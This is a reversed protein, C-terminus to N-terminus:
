KSTIIILNNEYGNNQVIPRLPDIRWEGDVIFKIEYRGPYLKLRLSFVGTSLKEMKRQTAWGDFSGTLLVESAPNPWVIHANHLLQLAKHAGDIRKQKEELMKQADIIALTMKGEIVALKARISRLREHANIFENEQFEWADSLKELDSKTVERSIYEESKSRLLQLASALEVELHMLRTRINNHNNGNQRHLDDTASEALLDIDDMSANREGERNQSFAIEAAEFEIDQTGARQLNWTRWSDPRIERPSNIMGLDIRDSGTSVPNRDSQNDRSSGHSGNRYNGINIGLSSNREKELRSLIGEIGGGEEAETELLRGSSSAPQSASESSDHFGTSEVENNEFESYEMETNEFAATEQSPVVENNEITTTEQCSALRKRLKEIEFDFDLTEAEKDVKEEDGSNWGLTFWGGRESIADALDFRGAKELEKRSPFTAPKESKEMFELIRAELEADGESALGGACCCWDCGESRRKRRSRGTRRLELIGYVGMGKAAELTFTKFKPLCHVMLVPRFVFVLSPVFPANSQSSPLFLNLAAIHSVM